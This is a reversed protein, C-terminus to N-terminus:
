VFISTTLTIPTTSIFSKHQEETLVEVVEEEMTQYGTGDSDKRFLLNHQDRMDKVQQRRDQRLQWRVAQAHDQSGRRTLNWSVWQSSYIFLLYIFLNISMKDCIFDNRWLRNMVELWFVEKLFTELNPWYFVFIGKSFHFQDENPWLNLRKTM